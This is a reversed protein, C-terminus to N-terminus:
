QRKYHLYPQFANWIKTDQTIHEMEGQEIPLLHLSVYHKYSYNLLSHIWIKYGHEM